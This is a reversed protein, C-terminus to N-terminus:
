GGLGVRKARVTVQIPEALGDKSSGLSEGPSWGMLRMMRHGVNTEGVPKASAGVVDGARPKADVIAKKVSQKSAPGGKHKGIPGKVAQEQSAIQHPISKWNEPSSSLRTRYILTTKKNGKGHIKPLVHYLKAMYGVLRRIGGPMSPLMMYEPRSSDNVFDHISLNLKQLYKVLDVGIKRSNQARLIDFLEESQQARKQMQEKKVLKKEKKERKLQKRRQTKSPQQPVETWDYDGNMQRQFVKERSMLALEEATMEWASREGEFDRRAYDDEDDSRDLLAQHLKNEDISSGETDTGEFLDNRGIGNDSDFELEDEAEMLDEYIGQEAFDSGNEELNMSQVNSIYDDLPDCNEIYDKWEVEDDRRKNRKKNRKKPELPIYTPAEDMESVIIQAKDWDGQTDIWFNMSYSVKEFECYGMLFPKGWLMIIMGM